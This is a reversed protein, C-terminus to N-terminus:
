GNPLEHGRAYYEGESHNLKRMEVNAIFIIGTEYLTSLILSSCLFYGARVPGPHQRLAHAFAGNPGSSQSEM